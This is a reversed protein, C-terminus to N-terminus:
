PLNAPAAPATSVGCRRSLPELPPRRALSSSTLCAEPRVLALLGASKAAAHQSPSGSRAFFEAYPRHNLLQLSVFLHARYRRPSAMQFAAGLLILCFISLFM